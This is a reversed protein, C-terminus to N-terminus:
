PQLNATTATRNDDDLEEDLVGEVRIKRDIKGVNIGWERPYACAERRERTCTQTPGRNLIQGM